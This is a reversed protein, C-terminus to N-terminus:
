AQVAMPEESKLPLPGRQMKLAHADNLRDSSGALLTRVSVRMTKTGIPADRVMFLSGKLYPMGNLVFVYFDVHSEDLKGHRHINFGWEGDADIDGTKVEVRWGNVALDFPSYYGAYSTELGCRRFWEYAAKEGPKGVMNSM